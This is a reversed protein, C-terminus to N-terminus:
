LDRSFVKTRLDLLEQALLALNEDDASSTQSALDQRVERQEAELVDMDDVHVCNVDAIEIALEQEPVGFAGKAQTDRSLGHLCFSTPCGFAVTAASNMM